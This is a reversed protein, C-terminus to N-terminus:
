FAILILLSSFIFGLEGAMAKPESEFSMEKNVTIHVIRFEILPFTIVINKITSSEDVIIKKRICKHFVTAINTFIEKSFCYSYM